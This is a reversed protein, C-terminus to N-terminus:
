TADNHEDYMILTHGIGADVLFYQYCFRTTQKKKFIDIYDIHGYFVSLNRKEQM